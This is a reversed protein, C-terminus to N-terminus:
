KTLKLNTIRDRVEIPLELFQDICRLQAITLGSPKLYGVEFIAQERIQELMQERPDKTNAADGSRTLTLPKGAEDVVEVAGLDVDSGDARGLGVHGDAAVSVSSIEFPEFDTALFDDVDNADKPNATRVKTMKYTRYGFSIGNRIQDHMDQLVDEARQSRSLKAVAYAKDGTIWHDTIVGIQEDTRHGLLFPVLGAKLREARISSANIDLIENGFWRRIPTRSSWSFQVERKKLDVNKSAFSETRYLLDNM